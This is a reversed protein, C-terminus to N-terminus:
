IYVDHVVFSVWMGTKVHFCLRLLNDYLFLILHRTFLNLLCFKIRNKHMSICYAFLKNHVNSCGYFDNEIHKSLGIIIDMNHTIHFNVKLIYNYKYM